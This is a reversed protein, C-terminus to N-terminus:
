LSGSGIVLVLFCDQAVVESQPFCWVMVVGLTLGTFLVCLDPLSYHSSGLPSACDLWTFWSHPLEILEEWERKPLPM